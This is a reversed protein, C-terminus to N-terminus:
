VYKGRYTYMLMEMFTEPCVHVHMHIHANWIHSRIHSFPGFGAFILFRTLWVMSYSMSRLLYGSFKVGNCQIGVSIYRSAHANLAYAIISFRGRKRMTRLVEINGGPCVSLELGGGAITSM